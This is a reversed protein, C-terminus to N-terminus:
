YLFYSYYIVICAPEIINSFAFQFRKAADDYNGSSLFRQGDSIAQNAIISQQQRTVVESRAAQTPPTAPIPDAARLWLPSLPLLSGALLRCAHNPKM